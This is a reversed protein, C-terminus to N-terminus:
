EEDKDETSYPRVNCEAEHESKIARADCNREHEEKLRSGYDYIMRRKAAAEEKLEQALWNQESDSYGLKNISNMIDRKFTTKPKSQKGANKLSKIIVIIAAVTFIALQLLTKYENYRM